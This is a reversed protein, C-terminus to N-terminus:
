KLAQFPKWLKRLITAYENPDAIGNLPFAYFSLMSIHTSESPDSMNALYAPPPPPPLMNPNKKVHIVISPRKLQFTSSSSALQSEFWDNTRQFTLRVDDDTLIPWETCTGNAITDNNSTVINTISAIITGDESLMPYSGYLLYSDKKLARFFAHMEARLAIMTTTASSSTPIFVRGRKERGTLKLEQRLTECVLIKVQYLTPINSQTDVVNATSPTEVDTTSITKIVDGNTHNGHLLQKLQYNRTNSSEISKQRAERKARYVQIREEALERNTKLVIRKTSDTVTMGSEGANDNNNPQYQLTMKMTRSQATVSTSLTRYGYWNLNSTTCDASTSLYRFFHTRTRRHTSLFTPKSISRSVTSTIPFSTVKVLKFGQYICLLIIMYMYLVFWKRLLVITVNLLMEGHLVTRITSEKGRTEL